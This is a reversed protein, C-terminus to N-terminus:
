KRNIKGWFVTDGKYEEVFEPKEILDRLTLQQM